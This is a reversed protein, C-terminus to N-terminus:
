LSHFNWDKVVHTPIFVILYSGMDIVSIWKRAGYQHKNPGMRETAGVSALWEWSLTMSGRLVTSTESIHLM